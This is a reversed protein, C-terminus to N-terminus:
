RTFWGKRWGTLFLGTLLFLVSAPGPLPVASSTPVYGRFSGIDDARNADNVSTEVGVRVQYDDSTFDIIGAPWSDDAALLNGTADYIDLWSEFNIGQSSVDAYNPAAAYDLTMYINDADGSFANGLYLNSTTPSDFELLISGSSDFFTLSSYVIASTNTTDWALAGDFTAADSYAALFNSGGTPTYLLGSFSVTFVDARASSTTLVAVTLLTSLILKFKKMSIMGQRRVQTHSACHARHTGAPADGM